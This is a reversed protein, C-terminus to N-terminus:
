PLRLLVKVLRRVRPGFLFPTYFKGAVRKNLEGFTPYPAVFGTMASLNKGWTLALLWPQILEGANPAAISVGLIKGNGRVVVKILGETERDAQARDNEAVAWTVAKVDKYKEQAAAETLGVQAIEPDTYTVAPVLSVNTKAPRRFLINQVVVSAHYGAMHTLRPGGDACDGIAYIRKNSTRLSGDVTIGRATYAVDAAELNLSELDPQRGAAVLLHSGSVVVKQGEIECRVHIEGNGGDVVEQIEVIERITVGEARLRGTVVARTEPDDNPLVSFRELITVHSGLRRHAQALEMGIAGGGIIILHSPLVRNDFITENTFYSSRALGPIPPIAPRSGTAIIFRKARVTMGEIEVTKPDLFAAEGEMVSVGLGEFREVTDAPSIAEIVGHVHDLVANFDVQPAVPAIGFKAADAMTKAQKGAALMAKSPVCGTHLCEGGMVGNRIRKEILVVRAGMQSAGAAVSLGAAGSGIVCLDTEIQTEPDRDPLDDGTPLSM